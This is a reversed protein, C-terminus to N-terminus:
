SNFSPRIIELPVVKEAVLDSYNGSILEFDPEVMGWIRETRAYKDVTLLRDPNRLLVPTLQIFSYVFKEVQLCTLISICLLCFYGQVSTHSSSHTFVSVTKIVRISQFGASNDRVM